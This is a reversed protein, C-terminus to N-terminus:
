SSPDVERSIVRNTENARSISRRSRSFPSIGLLSFLPSPASEEVCFVSASVVQTRKLIIERFLQNHFGSDIIGISFYVETTTASDHGVFMFLSGENATVASKELEKKV